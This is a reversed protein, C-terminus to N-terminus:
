KRNFFAGWSIGIICLAIIFPLPAGKYRIIGVLSVAVVIVSLIGSFFLGLCFHLRYEDPPIISVWFIMAQLLSLAVTSWGICGEPDSGYPRKKGDRWYNLRIM